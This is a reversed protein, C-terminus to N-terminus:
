CLEAKSLIVFDRLLFICFIADRCLKFFEQSNGSFEDLLRDQTNQLAGIYHLSVTQEM